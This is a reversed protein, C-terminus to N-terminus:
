IIIILYLLKFYKKLLAIKGFSTVIYHHVLDPVMAHLFLCFIFNLILVFKAILSLQCM